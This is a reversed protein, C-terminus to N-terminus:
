GGSQVVRIERMHICGEMGDSGTDHRLSLKVQDGCADCPIRYTQGELTFDDGVNLTGCLSETNTTRNGVFIKLNQMRKVNHNLHSQFIVIESLCYVADFEMKYWLDTDWACDTHSTTEMDGDIARDAVADKYMSSQTVSVPGMIQVSFSITNLKFSANKYEWFETSDVFYIQIWM